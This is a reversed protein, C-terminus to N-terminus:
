WWYSIRRKSKTYFISIYLNMFSYNSKPVIVPERFHFISQEGDDQTKVQNRNQSFINGQQWWISLCVINFVKITKVWNSSIIFELKQVLFSNVIGNKFRIAVTHFHTCLFVFILDKLTVESIAWIMFAKCQQLANHESLSYM